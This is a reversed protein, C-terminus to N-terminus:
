LSDAACQVAEQRLIEAAREGLETEPKLVPPLWEGTRKKIGGYSVRHRIGPERGREISERVDSLM